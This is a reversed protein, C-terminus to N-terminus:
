WFAAVSAALSTLSLREQYFLNTHHRPMTRDAALAAYKRCEAAHLSDKSSRAASLGVSLKLLM